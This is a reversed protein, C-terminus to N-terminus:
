SQPLWEEVTWGGAVHQVRALTVHYSAPLGEYQTSGSTQERTVIVWMGPRMLDHAVSVLQGTNEIQGQRITSDAASTAAAQREALRAPGVAMAALTRQTASLTKYNWNTYLRAFAALAQQPTAQVDAPAQGSATPAPPAPPEGANQAASPSQAQGAGSADPNSCGSAALALAVAVTVALIRISTRRSM